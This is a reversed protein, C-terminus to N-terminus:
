QAPPSHIPGLAMRFGVFHIGNSPSMMFRNASRAYEIDQNWGGGRFVKFKSNAPGAPNTLPAAPYPAFWDLCWEWVNGHMDYLGWPNPRKLGVPHTTAESNEATWAFQDAMGPDDGFSFLNTTGARCAYEWEAESPLRYEYGPPLREAKRERQTIAACYASADLFTVKEVPRNPEGPFHSPNRGLVASFEGQTVEYKGIWFDRTITVPYKIRMFTGAKILVMNTLPVLESRVLGPSSEVPKSSAVSSRNDCGSQFLAILMFCMSGIWRLGPVASWVQLFAGGSTKRAPSCFAARPLRASPKVESNPNL